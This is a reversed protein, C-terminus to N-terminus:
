LFDINTNIFIPLPIPSRQPSHMNEKTAPFETNRPLPSTCHICRGKVALAILDNVGNTCLWFYGM